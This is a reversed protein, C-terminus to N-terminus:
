LYAMPNLYANDPAVPLVAGADTCPTGGSGRWKGLDMIQVGSSAYVGFHLHPGTAYGTMGSLGLEQGTTVVQGKTAEISSLHAYLTSLGNPHQVMVWKGFSYCMQGSPSKVDTNGTALVTGGLAALVPTGIPMGIDIGDHGMGNYVAAHAAAFQTNGFYQTVCYPNGLASSKGQCGQMFALSAPWKLIGSGAQPISGASVPALQAQLDALTKEFQAEQAKKQAILSQYQSEQSQTQTLLSQKAQKTATLQKNQSTLDSGLSALQDHQASVSTQEESLADKAQALSHTHGQLTAALQNDADVAAWATALSDSSFLTAVLPVDDASAIDRLSAAVAQREMDISDQTSGILSSLQKLKLNAADISKQTSKIKALLQSQSTNLSSISTQLTQHQVGLSDLQKQYQAIQADLEAKQSNIDNIQSQIDSVTDALLASPHALLVVLLLFLITFSRRVLIM